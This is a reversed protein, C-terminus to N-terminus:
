LSLPPGVQDFLVKDLPDHLPGSKGSRLRFVRYVCDEVAHLLRQDRAITNFQATKAHERHLWPLGADAAIRSGACFHADSRAFCNPELWAFFQVQHVLRSSRRSLQRSEAPTGRGGPTGQPSTGKNRTTLSAHDAITKM